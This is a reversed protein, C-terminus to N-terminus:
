ESVTSFRELDILFHRLCSPWDPNSQMQDHLALLHLSAQERMRRPPKGYLREKQRHRDEREVAKGDGGDLGWALWADTAQAAAMFVVGLEATRQCDKLKLRSEEVIKELEKWRSNDSLNLSNPDFTDDLDFHVILLDYHGFHAARV